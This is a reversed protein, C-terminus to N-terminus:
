KKCYGWWEYFLQVTLNNEEIIKIIVDLKANINELKTQATMFSSLDNKVIQNVNSGYRLCTLEEIASQQSINSYAYKDIINDIGNLMRNSTSNTKFFIYVIGWLGLIVAAIQLENLHQNLKPVYKWFSYVAILIFLGFDISRQVLGIWNNPIISYKTGSSVLKNRDRWLLYVIVLKSLAVFVFVFLIWSYNNCIILLISLVLYLVGTYVLDFIPIEDWLTTLRNPYYIEEKPFLLPYAMMVVILLSSFGIFLMLIDSWGVCSSTTTLEKFINFAYVVLAVFTGGIAWNSWGPKSFNTHLRDKEAYLFSLFESENLKRINENKKNM